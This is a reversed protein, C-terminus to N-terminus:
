NIEKKEAHDSSKKLDRAISFIDFVDGRKGRQKMGELLDLRVGQLEETNQIKDQTIYAM